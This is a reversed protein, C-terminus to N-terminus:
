RAANTNSADSENHWEGDAVSGLAKTGTVGKAVVIKRSSDNDQGIVNGSITNNSGAAVKVGTWDTDMGDAIITNGNLVNGDGEVHVIGWDDNRGKANGKFGEVSIVNNSVVNGNGTDGDSNPLLEVMGNYYSSITNGSIVGHKPCTLRINASGDPYITNGTINYRDPNELLMTVGQPQAGISNGTIVAQQSAGTLEIGSATEAIWSGSIRAADAGKLKIAVGVNNFAMDEISIRDNDTQADIGFGNNASGKIQFNRFTLGSIRNTNASNKVKIATVGDHSVLMSGGGGAQTHGDDPDVASRVSAADGEITVYSRDVVISSLLHYSGNPIYITGGTKPLKGIIKNIVPANDFSPDNAKAGYDAINYPSGTENATSRFQAAAGLAVVALGAVIAIIGLTRKSNKGVM